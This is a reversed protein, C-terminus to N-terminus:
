RSAGMVQPHADHAAGADHAPIPELVDAGAVRTVLTLSARLESPISEARDSRVILSFWENATLLAELQALDDLRRARGQSYFEASFYSGSWYYIPQRNATHRADVAAVVSEKTHAAVFADARDLLMASAVVLAAALAGVHQLRRADRADAALLAVTALVAGPLAPLVYPWIINASFTFLVLPTLAWFLGFLVLPRRTRWNGRVTARHRYAVPALLLPWPLCALAFFVWIAGRPLDHAFGYQDGSWGPVLFRGLHEGVLFYQLFGPYRWEAAAYWPVAIAAALAGGRLWAFRRWVARTQGTALAWAGIPTLILIAVLPGKTLLGIGIAAYLALEIRASGGHFRQWFAILGISVCATLIMDTMVAAMSAFFLVTSTLMLVGAVAAASGLLRRLWAQYAACCAIATAFILARAAFATQGFLEMGIASLWMALPPKALYPVGYRHQAMLWNGTEVMKRAMEAYRAETTDMLPLDIALWLRTILLAAIAALATLLAARPWAANAAAPLGVALTARGHGPSPVTSASARV